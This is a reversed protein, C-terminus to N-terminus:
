EKYKKVYENLENKSSLSTFFSSVVSYNNKDNCYKYAFKAFDLKDTELSFLNLMSKVQQSSICKYQAILNKATELKQRTSLERRINTKIQEYDNNSLVCPSPI